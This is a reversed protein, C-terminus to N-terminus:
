GRLNKKRFVKWFGHTLGLETSSKCLPDVIHLRKGDTTIGRLEGEKGSESPVIYIYEMYARIGGKLTVSSLFGLQYALNGNCDIFANYKM